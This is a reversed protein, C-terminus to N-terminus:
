LRKAAWIVRGVINVEEADREYTQYEPNLSKIIVKAPESHPTHEVRKAVVGM